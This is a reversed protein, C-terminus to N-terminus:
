SDSEDEDDSQMGFRHYHREFGPGLLRPDRSQAEECDANGKLYAAELEEFTVTENKFKERRKINDVGGDALFQRMNYVWALIQKREKSLTKRPKVNNSM